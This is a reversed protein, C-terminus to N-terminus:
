RGESEKQHQSSGTMVDQMAEVLADTLDPTRVAIRLHDSGLGVFNACSRIGFGRARLRAKVGLGDPVRILVYSAAPPVAPEVGIDALRRVLYERDAAVQRAQQQAYSRGEDSVCAALATLALTGLPWHRRGRVLQEIVAPAALLYGVRLGALAFTKTVSRIVVLDPASVSAMSQPEDAATVADLTVDAFAEDIVVTRGPRRLRDIEARTHLVSTPNTPNGVVVLDADDPIAADGLRWPAALVVQTIRAGTARLVREPETFSPQILAVHRPRLRALLEFGEAAGGLLLVESDDRGHLRAASRTAATTDAASPYAALDGIRETLARTLFSPPGPRVNVAFDRLGLEADEDGHRDPDFLDGSESRPNAASSGRTEASSKM